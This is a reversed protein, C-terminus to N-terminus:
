LVGSAAAVSLVIQIVLLCAGTRFARSIRELRAGNARQDEAMHAILDLRLSAMDSDLHKILLDHPNTDFHWDSRPWVITVLCVSLLLFAVIALWGFLRGEGPVSAGPLSVTVSAAALLVSARSRLETLTAIQHDLARVAERYALEYADEVAV